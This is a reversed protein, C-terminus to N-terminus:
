ATVGSQSRRQFSSKRATEKIGNSSEKGTLSSWYWHLPHQKRTEEVNWKYNSPYGADRKNWRAYALEVMSSLHDSDLTYWTFNIRQNDSSKKVRKQGGKSMVGIGLSSNVASCFEKVVDKKSDCDTIKLEKIKTDFENDFDEGNQQIWENLWNENRITMISFWQKSCFEGSARTIQDEVNQPEFDDDKNATSDLGLLYALGKLLRCKKYESQESISVAVNKNEPRDIKSEVRHKTQQLPQNV